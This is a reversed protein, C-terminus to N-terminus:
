GELLPIFADLPPISGNVVAQLFECFASLEGKFIDCICRKPLRLLLSSFFEPDTASTYNEEGKWETYHNPLPQICCIVALAASAPEM